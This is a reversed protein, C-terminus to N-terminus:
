CGKLVVLWPPCPPGQDPSPPPDTTMGCDWDQVSSQVARIGCRCAEKVDAAGDNGREHSRLSSVDKRSCGGFSHSGFLGPYGGGGLLYTPCIPGGKKGM